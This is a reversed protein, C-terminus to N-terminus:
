WTIIVETATDVDIYASDPGAYGDFSFSRPPLSSRLAFTAEGYTGIPETKLVSDRDAPAFWMFKITANGNTAVDLSLPGGLYHGTSFSVGGDATVLAEEGAFAPLSVLAALMIILFRM